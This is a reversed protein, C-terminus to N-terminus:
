RREEDEEEAEGARGGARWGRGTTDRLLKKLKNKSGVMM